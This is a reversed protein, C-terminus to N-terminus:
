ARYRAFSDLPTYQRKKAVLQVIPGTIKWMEATHTDKYAEQANKLEDTWEVDVGFSTVRYVTKHQVQQM